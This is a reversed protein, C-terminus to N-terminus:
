ASSPTTSGRLRARSFPSLATLQDDALLRARVGDLDDVAHLLPERSSACPAGARCRSALDDAVLREEDLAADLLDLVVEPEAGDQDRERDQEEHAVPPGRQDGAERDGRRDDGREGEHPRPKVSLLMVISAQHQGDADDDVVGHDDVLVDEAVHLLVALVGMSAADPPVASIASATMAVVSDSTTMKRGTAKMSPCTPRNKWLKPRVIANAM